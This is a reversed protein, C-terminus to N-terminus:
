SIASLARLALVQVVAARGTHKSGECVDRELERVIEFELGALEDRLQAATMLLEV